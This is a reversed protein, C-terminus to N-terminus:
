RDKGVLKLFITIGIKEKKELPETTQVPQTEKKKRLSERNKEQHKTELLQKQHSKNLETPIQKIHNLCWRRNRLYQNCQKGM